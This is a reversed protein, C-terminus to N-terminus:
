IHKCIIADPFHAEIIASYIQWNGGGLGCGMKYPFYFEKRNFVSTNLRQQANQIREFAEVTAEYNTQRANRSVGGQGFVNAIHLEPTIKYLFVKGLLEEHKFNHKACLANYAEELGPYRDALSRAIGAGMVGQCNVQHFLIGSTLQLMDQEIIKV